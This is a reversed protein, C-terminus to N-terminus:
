EARLYTIMDLVQKQYILVRFEAIDDLPIRGSGISTATVSLYRIVGNRLRSLNADLARLTTGLLYGQKQNLLESNAM